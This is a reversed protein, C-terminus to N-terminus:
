RGPRLGVAGGSRGTGCAECVIRASPDGIVRDAVMPQSFLFGFSGRVRSTAGEQRGQEGERDGGREGVAPATAAALVVSGRNAGGGGYISVAAGTEEEGRV